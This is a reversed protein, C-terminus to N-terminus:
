VPLVTEWVRSQLSVQRIIGGARNAAAQDLDASVRHAWLFGIRLEVPSFSEKM